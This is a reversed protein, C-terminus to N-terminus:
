ETQVILASSASATTSADPKSTSRRESAVPWPEPMRATGLEQLRKGCTWPVAPKKTARSMPAQSDAEGGRRAAGALRRARGVGLRHQARHGLRPRARSRPGLDGLADLWRSVETTNRLLASAELEREGVLPKPDIVLWPERQASLINGGHLDQNVLYAATRDVSRYVDLAADVLAREFPRWGTLVLASGGRGV